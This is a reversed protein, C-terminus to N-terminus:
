NEYVVAVSQSTPPAGPIETQFTVEAPRGSFLREVNRRGRVTIVLRGDKQRASVGANRVITNLGASTHQFLDKQGAELLSSFSGSGQSSNPNKWLFFGFTYEQGENVVKVDFAYERARERSEKMRWKWKDRAPVPMTFRAEDKRVVATYASADQARVGGSAAASACLLSAFIVVASKLSRMM